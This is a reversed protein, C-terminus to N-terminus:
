SRAPVRCTSPRHGRAAWPRDSSRVYTDPGVMETWVATVNGAADAVVATGATMALGRHASPEGAVDAGGTGTGPSSAWCCPRLRGLALRRIRHGTM